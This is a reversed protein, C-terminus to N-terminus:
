PAAPEEIQVRVRGALGADRAWFEGLVLQQLHRMDHSNTIHAEPQFVAGDTASAHRGETTSGADIGPRTVQWLVGGANRVYAAENAFRVDTLVWRHQQLERIGYTITARAQRVWYDVDQARRYQTGWVQVTWRPTRPAALQVDAPVGPETTALHVLAAGVFAQDLCRALALEQMPREKMERRTFVIGEVHFAEQVEARLADAFALKRFGCHTVLMDAVSDKGVGAFGTLGIIHHTSGPM